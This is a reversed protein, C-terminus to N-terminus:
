RGARPVLNVPDVPMTSDQGVIWATYSAARQWYRRSGALRRWFVGRVPLLPRVGTSRPAFVVEGGADERPKPTRFSWAASLFEGDPGLTLTGEIGTRERDRPCFALTTEDGSGAFVSLTHLAGFEDGAFHYAYREHLAPYSWAFYDDQWSIGWPIYGLSKPAAYGWRRIMGDVGRGGGAASGSAPQLRDEDVIGVERADVTGALMRAVFAVGRAAVGPDYRRRGDEWAGRAAPDERNPCARRATGSRLEPLSVALPELRLELSAPPAVTRTLPAFGIRQVTLSGAGAAADAPFGFRGQADTATRGLRADAGWLEVTAAPVPRGDPGTVVGRVQAAAPSTSTLAALVVASLALVSLLRM